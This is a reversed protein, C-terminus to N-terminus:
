EAAGNRTPDVLIQVIEFPQDLFLSIPFTSCEKSPRSTVATECLHGAVVPRKYSRGGRRAGRFEVGFHPTRTM